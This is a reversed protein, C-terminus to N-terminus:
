TGPPAVIVTSDVARPPLPWAGQPGRAPAHEQRPEVGEDAARVHPGDDADPPDVTPEVERRAAGRPPRVESEVPRARTLQWSHTALTLLISTAVAARCSTCALREVSRVVM